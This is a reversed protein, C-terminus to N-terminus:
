TRVNTTEFVLLLVSSFPPLIYALACLKSLEWGLGTAYGTITSNLSGPMTSPTGGLGFEQTEEDVDVYVHGISRPESPNIPMTKARAAEDWSRPQSPPRPDRSYTYSPPAQPASYQGDSSQYSEIIYPADEDLGKAPMPTTGPKSKQSTM